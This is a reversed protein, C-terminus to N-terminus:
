CAAAAGLYTRARKYWDCKEVVGLTRNCPPCLLGRVRNTGHDHDITASQETRGWLLIDEGCIACKKDQNIWMREKDAPLLGYRSLHRRRYSEDAKRKSEPHAIRSALIGANHCSKCQGYLRDSGGPDSSFSSVPQPEGSFACGPKTCVKMGDVAAPM